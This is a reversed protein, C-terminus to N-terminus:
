QVRRDELSRDMARRLKQYSIPKMFFYTLCMRYAQVGFDLDSIWILRRSLLQASAVADLGQVGDLAVIVTDWEKQKLAAALETWNWCGAVHVAMNNDAGWRHLYDTMLMYEKQNNDCIIIDM